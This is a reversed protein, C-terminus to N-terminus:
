QAQARKPNTLRNRGADPQLTARALAASWAELLADRSDAAMDPNFLDGGVIGANQSTAGPVAAMRAVGIATMETVAPRRVPRDTVDAITQLLLDSAAAGGDVSIEGLTTDLDAEMAALVDEIQLAIAQLTARALHAPKTRLTMGSFAGRADTRWHPAGLGALAPVFVVGDADPVSGALESLATADALNLLEATFEAARGSVSINGELAYAPGSETAWGLAGSLGHASRARGDTLTMLSSGTGLTVKVRGPERIGHGYLAAHSDGMVARIEVGGGLSTTGPATDGFSANSPRIEPLMDRPIDFWDAIDADWDLSELNMLQTRSANSADTAHVAGGTLKFLLWSDVTGAMAEGSSARARLGETNELLWAIKGASFLPDLGLGTRDVISEELGQAAWSRCTEASRRCQWLVVPALPEGTEADWVLASERQNAIAVASVDLGPKSAVVEDITDKVTQWLDEADCEVWGPEPHSLRLSRSAATVVDGAEDILLCKSNTTGQDIALVASRGM